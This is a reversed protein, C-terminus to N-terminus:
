ADDLPAELRELEQLARRMIKHFDRRRNQPTYEGPSEAVGDAAARLPEAPDMGLFSLVKCTDEFTPGKIRKHWKRLNDQSVGMARAIEAETLLHRRSYAVLRDWVPQM